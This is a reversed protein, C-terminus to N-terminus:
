ALHPPTVRRIARTKYSERQNQMDIAIAEFAVELCGLPVTVQTKTALTGGQDQFDVLWRPGDLISRTQCDKIWLKVSQPSATAPLYALVPIPIGAILEGEPIDLVPLALSDAQPPQYVDPLRQCDVAPNPQPKASLLQELEQDMMSNEADPLPHLQALKHLFREENASIPPQPVFPPTSTAVHVSSRLPPLDKLLLEPSLIHPPYTVAFHETIGAFSAEGLLVAQCPHRPLEIELDLSGGQLIYRRIDVLPQLTQPNKLLITLEGSGATAIPLNITFRDSVLFDTAQLRFLELKQEARDQAPMAEIRLAVALDHEPVTCRVLWSGATLMTFPLVILLGEPSTTKTFEQDWGYEHTAQPCSSTPPTPLYGVQIHVATQPYQCRVALRYEGALVEVEPAELLLWAADGKKQLRFEWNLM